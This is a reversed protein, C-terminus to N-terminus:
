RFRGLDSIKQGVGYPRPYPKRLNKASYVSFNQVVVGGRTFPITAIKTLSQFFPPYRTEALRDAEFNVSGIYLGNKGVFQRDAYWFAFGRPDDDFCTVPKGSIPTLAMAIQGATYYRNSFIYDTSNLAAKLQPDTEFKRRMQLVDVLETSTDIKVPLLGGFLTYQSPKQLIGWQLHGIALVFLVHVITACIWLWRKVATDHWQRWSVAQDALLFTATWFGPMLWSPLIHQYGAIISFIVIPPLAVWLLLRYKTRDDRHFFTAAPIASGSLRKWMTWILPFSIGPFLYLLQLLFTTFIRDIQYGSTPVARNSQFRFSVWDQYFNWAIAPSIVIAFTTAGFWFWRSRFIQRYQPTSLCFGVLGMGLFVGHYKSMFAMGITACLPIIKWTPRYRPLDFFESAAIWLAISWFFILPVDPVTFCGFVLQFIPIFSFIVVATLGVARDFLKCGTLYAIFLTGTYLLISGLRMTIPTVWGLAMNIGWATTLAVLPPHDFYSWDPHITYLYYYAEDYGIPMWIGILLRGIAGGVLVLSLNRLHQDNVIINLWRFM